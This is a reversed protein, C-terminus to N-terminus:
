AVTTYYVEKTNECPTAMDYRRYMNACPDILESRQQDCCCTRQQQQQQQQQYQQQVNDHHMVNNGCCCPIQGCRCPRQQQQQQQMNDHHMGNNGCCCPRQACRCPRQQQQMNDHHMGNNAHTMTSDSTQYPRSAVVDPNCGIDVLVQRISDSRRLTSGFQARYINPDVRFCGVNQIEQEIRVRPQDYQLIVNRQTTQCQETQEAREYIVPREVQQKYPLWKEIIVPRPKAPPQPIRKIIVRRPLAPPPPLTKTIIKPPQHLPPTPPQERVILPSPTRPICPPTTSLILPPLQQPSQQIERIIIPEPPPPTPPELYRVGVKQIYVLEDPNKQYVIEPEPDFNVPVEVTRENLCPYSHTRNNLDHQHCPCEGKRQNYFSVQRSKRLTDLCDDESAVRHQLVRDFNYRQSDTSKSRHKRVLEEQEQRYRDPFLRAYASQPGSVLNVRRIPSSELQTTVMEDTKENAEKNITTTTTTTVEQEYLAPVAPQQTKHFWETRIRRFHQGDTSNIIEDNYNDRIM